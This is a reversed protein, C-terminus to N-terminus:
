LTKNQKINKVAWPKEGLSTGQSLKVESGGVVALQPFDPPPKRAMFNGKNKRCNPQKGLNLIRLFKAFKSLTKLLEPDYHNMHEDLRKLTFAVWEM